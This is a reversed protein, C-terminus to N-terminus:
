NACPINVTLGDAPIYRKCGSKKNGSTSTKKGVKESVIDKLMAKVSTKSKKSVIKKAPLAVAVKDRKLGSKVNKSKGFKSLKGKALKPAGLKVTGLKGKALKGKGLKLKPLSAAKGVKLKSGSGKGLYRKAVCRVKDRRSGGNCDSSGSKRFSSKKDDFKISGTYQSIREKWGGAQAATAISMSGAAVTAAAAIATITKFM